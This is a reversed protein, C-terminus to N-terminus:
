PLAAAFIQFSAGVKRHFYLLREDASLAPGEVFEGLGEVRVAASFPQSATDRQARWIQPLGSLSELRTFWLTLQDKSLAPAYQLAGINVAALLAASNKLRVFESGNWAAMVLEAAEPLQSIPNFRSDVFTMLRGSADIDVDFNVIGPESRCISKVLKVASVQGANFRAQYVTCATQAYSRTSVFYLNQASDMTATGELAPGNIEVLPGIFKYHFDDEREAYFLDTNVSPDNSNNFLLYRGDRSVFPEMAIGAYGAIEVTSVRPTSQVVACAAVACVILVLLIFKM